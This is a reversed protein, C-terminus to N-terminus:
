LGMIEASVVDYVVGPSVGNGFRKGHSSFQSALATKCRQPTKINTINEM